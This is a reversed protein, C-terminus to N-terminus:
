PMTLSRHSFHYVLFGAVVLIGGLIILGVPNGGAETGRYEPIAAAAEDETVSAVRLEADEASMGAEVLTGRLEERASVGEPAPVPTKAAEGGSTVLESPVPMGRGAPIAAAFVALFLVTKVLWRPPKLNM